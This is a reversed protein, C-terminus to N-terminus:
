AGLHIAVMNKLGSFFSFPKCLGFGVGLADAIGMLNVVGASLTSSLGVILALISEYFVHDSVEVNSCFLCVVEPYHRSYLCKRVAVPLHHHLAEWCMHYVSCFIDHVFHRINASITSDDTKVYCEKIQHSLHRIVDLNKKHIVGMIHHQEIWCCNQFDPYLLDLELRCTNFASQSDIFISVLSSFLVCELALTVTQLEAMTSSVLGSVEIGLGLGIDEFFVAADAKIDFTGLNCLSNDTYVAFQNVDIGLLHDCIVGFEQSELMDLFGVDLSPSFCVSASSIGNLFEVSHICHPITYYM